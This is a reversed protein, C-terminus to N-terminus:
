GAATPRRNRRAPRMAYSGKGAVACPIAMDNRQDPKRGTSRDESVSPASSLADHRILALHASEQGHNGLMIEKLFSTAMGITAAISTAPQELAAAVVAGVCAGAVCAGAEGVAATAPREEAGAAPPTVTAVALVLAPVTRTAPAFPM